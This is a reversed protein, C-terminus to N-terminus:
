VRVMKQGTLLLLPNQIFIRLGLDRFITRVVHVFRIALGAETIREGPELECQIIRRRLAAYALEGQSSVSAKGPLPIAKDATSADGFRELELTDEENM